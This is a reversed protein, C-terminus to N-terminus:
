MAFAAGLSAVGQVLAAINAKRDRRDQRDLGENYRADERDMEMKRIELEAARQDKSDAMQALFQNNSQAMQATLLQMNQNGQQLQLQMQQDSKKGQQVLQQRSLELQGANTKATEELQKLVPKQALETQSTTYDRQEQVTKKDKDEKYTRFASGAQALTADEGINLEARTLGQNTLFDDVKKIGENKTRTDVAGETDVGVIGGVFKDWGSANYEGPKSVDEQRNKISEDKVYDQLWSLPDM